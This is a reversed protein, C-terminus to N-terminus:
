DVRRKALTVVGVVAVLLLLSIVEFPLIFTSYLAQGMLETNQTIQTNTDLTGPVGNIPSRWIVVSLMMLVALSLFVGLYRVVPLPDVTALERQEGALLMIVFLFLVMIAGAYVAVELVALLPSSLLVYLGALSAFCLVLFLASYVPNKRTIMMWAAGVAVAGFVWFLITQIV